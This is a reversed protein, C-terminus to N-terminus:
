NEPLQRVMKLIESENDGIVARGNVWDVTVPRVFRGGDEKFKKIADEADRAGKVLEGVGYIAKAKGGAGSTESVPSIYELISHLQDATPPATTVELEFEGRQQAAHASHDSAQDETATESAAISATKLINLARISPALTPSHFLTIPDLTKSFRFM